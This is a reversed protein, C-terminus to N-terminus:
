VHARGIEDVSLKCRKPRRGLEGARREASAARYCERGSNRAIERSITSPARGLGSAIRRLSVGGAIGRSIEEREATTLASSRRRRTAPAIGGREKITCHITGPARGLARAIESISEGRVWRAWLDRREASSYGRRSRAM